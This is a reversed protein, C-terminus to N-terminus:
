PLYFRGKRPEANAPEQLVPAPKKTGNPGRRRKRRIKVRSRPAPAPRPPAPAPQSNPIVIRVGNVVKEPETRAQVQRQPEPTAQHQAEARAEYERRDRAEIANRGGAARRRNYWDELYLTIALSTAQALMFLVVGAQPFMRSGFIHHNSSTISGAFILMPLPLLLLVVHLVMPSQGRWTTRIFASATLIIAALPVFFLGMFGLPSSKLMSIRETGTFLHAMLEAASHSSTAGDLYAWPLMLSLMALLIAANRWVHPEKIRDRVTQTLEEMRDNFDQNM